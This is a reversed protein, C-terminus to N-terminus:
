SELAIRPSLRFYERTPPTSSRSSQVKKTKEKEREKKEREKKMRQKEVGKQKQKQKQKVEVTLALKGSATSTSTSNARRRGQLRSKPKPKPLSYKKSPAAPNPPAAPPPKSRAMTTRPLSGGPHLPDILRPLRDHLKPPASDLEVFLTNSYYASYYLTNSFFVVIGIWWM